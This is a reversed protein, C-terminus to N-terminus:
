QSTVTVWWDFSFRTHEKTLHTGTVDCQCIHKDNNNSNICFKVSLLMTRRM